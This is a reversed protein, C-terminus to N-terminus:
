SEETLRAFIDGSNVADPLKGIFARASPADAWRAFRLDHEEGFSVNFRYNGLSVLRDICSMAVSRQLTTFEFSLAPIHRSLGNLVEYEFGEVDVKVFDPEGYRKILADLTTVPVSLTQTWRQDRWARDHAAAAILAQSATSVTPNDANIHFQTSGIRAGVAEPILSVEDCRGYLLRLARFLLPQPEVAVVRAGLRVFSGTRDGVHAGIDFVLQGPRVLQAHLADM